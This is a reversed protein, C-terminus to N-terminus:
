CSVHSFRLVSNCHLLDLTRHQSASLQQSIRVLFSSRLLEPSSTSPANLNVLMKLSTLPQFDTVFFTSPGFVKERLRKQEDKDMGAEPNLIKFLTEMDSMM